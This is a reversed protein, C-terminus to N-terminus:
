CSFLGGTNQINLFSGVVIVLSKSLLAIVIGVLAYLLLTKSRKVKDESGGATFFLLGAYILAIVALVLVFAFFWNAINCLVAYLDALTKPVGQPAGGGAWAVFPVIILFFLSVFRLTM